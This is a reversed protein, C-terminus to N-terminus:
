WRASSGCVIPDARKLTFHCGSVQHILSSLERPERSAIGRRISRSGTLWEEPSRESPERGEQDDEEQPRGSERWRAGRSM